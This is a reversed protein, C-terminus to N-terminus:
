AIIEMPLDDFYKLKRYYSLPNLLPTMKSPPAEPIMLQPMRRLSVVLKHKKAMNRFSKTCSVFFDRSLFNSVDAFGGERLGDRVITVCSNSYFSFDKYYGPRSPNDPANRISDMKRKFIEQLFKTDLNDGEIRLVHISRAFSRGFKVTDEKPAFEGLAPRYFYEEPTLIEDESIKNSFNFVNGDVNIAIHGFFSAWYKVLRENYYVEIYNSNKNREINSKLWLLVIPLGTKPDNQSLERVLVKKNLWHAVYGGWIREGTFLKKGNNDEIFIGTEDKKLWGEMSINQFNNIM